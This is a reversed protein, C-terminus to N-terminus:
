SGNLLEEFASRREILEGFMGLKSVTLDLEFVRELLIFVPLNRIQQELFPGRSLVGREPPMRRDQECRDFTAMRSEHLRCGTFSGVEIFFFWAPRFGNSTALSAPCSRIM